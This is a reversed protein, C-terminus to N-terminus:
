KMSLPQKPKPIFTGAWLVATDVVWAAYPDAIRLYASPTTRGECIRHIGRLGALTLPIPLHATRVSIDSVFFVTTSISSTRTPM